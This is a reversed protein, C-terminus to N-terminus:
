GKKYGDAIMREMIAEESPWMAYLYQQPNVIYPRSAIEAIAERVLVLTAQGRAADYTLSDILANTVGQTQAISAGLVDAVFTSMVVTDDPKRTTM